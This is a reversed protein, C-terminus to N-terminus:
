KGLQQRLQQWLEVARFRLVYGESETVLAVDDGDWGAAIATSKLDTCSATCLPPYVVCWWNQGRGEGIVVRLAPYRGAPLSFGDYTKLPFEATTLVASVPYAGDCTEAATRELEPLAATLRRWADDRDASQELLATAEALVADRVQLKLAQDAESDSNAIVHLRILKRSLTEQRQVSVAGWVLTVALALLLAAEVRRAVGTYTSM